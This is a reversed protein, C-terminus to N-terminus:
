ANSSLTLGVMFRGFELRKRNKHEKLYLKYKNLNM